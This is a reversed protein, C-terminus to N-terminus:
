KGIAFATGPEKTAEAFLVDPVSLDGITLTDKSVFGEMEGSGYKIAFSSGNQKYSSSVLSNYRSHLLCSFSTCQVSPVWLNASSNHLILRTGCCLQDYIM